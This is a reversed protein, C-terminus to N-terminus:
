YDKTEKIYYFLYQQAYGAYPGFHKKSFNRLTKADKSDISYYHNLVKKVWTDVPFAQTKNSGFILICDAVKNGVGHLKKLVNRAKDIPLKNIQNLDIEGNNIMQASKKLYKDRYGVGMDRLEDVTLNAIVDATPFSYYDKNNITKLFKGYNKSLKHISNRIRKMNNNASIIFTIIIEFLDQNLLKLGHGYELAKNLHIDKKPFTKFIENYDKNLDFYNKWFKDFKDYKFYILNEDKQKLNILRDKSIITFSGNDEKYWNFVQGSDYIKELNLDKIEISNM